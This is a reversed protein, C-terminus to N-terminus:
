REGMDILITAIGQEIEENNCPANVMGGAARTRLRTYIDLARRLNNMGGMLQLHKGLALEIEIDDSPINMQGRTAQTRLRTYIDLARRLNETGGMLQLHKGLVLGNTKMAGLSTSFREYLLQFLPLAEILRGKAQLAQAKAKIVGKNNRFAPPLSNVYEICGDFDNLHLLARARLQVVRVYCSPRGSYKTLLAETRALVRQPNTILQSFCEDIDRGSPVSFGELEHPPHYSGPGPPSHIGPNDPAQRLLSSRLGIITALLGETGNTRLRTYIELAARLNAMGDMFQLHQALALEIDRDDCPVNAQGGAALTRLRTYIELAAKLNDAGGMLRLHKALALGNTKKDDFSESDREYLAQFLPLAETLHDNAQLAQAKAM